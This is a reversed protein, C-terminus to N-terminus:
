ARKLYADIASAALKGDGMALIVTAGGRVIDGGAFVGAISTECGPNIMINGRKNLTLDPESATLLPNASTGVADIVVGAPLDFDSGAIALPTRRGSTDPEGLEM